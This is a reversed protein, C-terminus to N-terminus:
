EDQDRRISGGIVAYGTLDRASFQFATFAEFDRYRRPDGAQLVQSRSWIPVLLRDEAAGFDQLSRDSRAMAQLFAVTAERQDQARARVEDAFGRIGSDPKEWETQILVGQSSLGRIEFEVHPYRAEIQELVSDVRAQLSDGHATIADFSDGRLLLGMSLGLLSAIAVALLLFWVPSVRANM